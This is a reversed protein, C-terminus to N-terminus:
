DMLIDGNTNSSISNFSESDTLVLSENVKDPNGNDFTDVIEPGM